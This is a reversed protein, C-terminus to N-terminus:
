FHTLVLIARRFVNAHPLWRPHVHSRTRRKHESQLVWRLLRFQLESRPRRTVLAAAIAGNLVFFSILATSLVSM